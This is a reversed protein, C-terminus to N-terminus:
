KGPSKYFDHSFRILILIRIAIIIRFETTECFISVETLKQKSNEPFLTTQSCTAFSAQSITNLWLFLREFIHLQCVCRCHRQTVSGIHKTILVIRRFQQWRNESPNKFMSNSRFWRMHLKLWNHCGLFM